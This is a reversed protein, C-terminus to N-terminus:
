DNNDAESELHKRLIQECSPGGPSPSCWEEFVCHGCPVETLCYVAADVMRNLRRVEAEAVEAREVLKGTAKAYNDFCTECKADMREIQAAQREILEALERLGKNDMYFTGNTKYHELAQKADMKRGVRM